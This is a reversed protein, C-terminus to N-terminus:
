TPDILIDVDDISDESAESVTTKTSFEIKEVPIATGDYFRHLYTLTVLMTASNEMKQFDIVTPTRRVNGTSTIGIVGNDGFHRYHTEYQELASKVKKMSFFAKDKYSRLRWICKEQYVSDTTGDDNVRHFIPKNGLGNDHFGSSDIPDLTIYPTTSQPLDNDAQLLTHDPLTETILSYLATAGLNYSVEEDTPIDALKAM